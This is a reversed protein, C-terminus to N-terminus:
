GANHNIKASYEAGAPVTLKCSIGHALGLEAAHNLATDSVVKARRAGVKDSSLLDNPGFDQVTYSQM